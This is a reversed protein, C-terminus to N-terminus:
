LGQQEDLFYHFIKVVQEFCKKRDKVQYRDLAAEIALHNIDIVREGISVVQGRVSLYVKVADSNGPM